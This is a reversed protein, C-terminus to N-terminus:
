CLSYVKGCQQTAYLVAASLWLTWLMFLICTNTRYAGTDVIFDTIHVFPFSVGGCSKPTCCHNCCIVPGYKRSEREGERRRENSKKIQGSIKKQENERVSDDYQHKMGQQRTLSGAWPVRDRAVPTVVQEWPMAKQVGEKAQCEQRGGKQRNEKSSRTNGNVGVKSGRPSNHPAFTPFVPGSMWVLNSM